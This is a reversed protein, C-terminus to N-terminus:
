RARSGTEKGDHDDEKSLQNMIKKYRMEELPKREEWRDGHGGIYSRLVQRITASLERSRKGQFSKVWAALRPDGEEDIKLSIQIM